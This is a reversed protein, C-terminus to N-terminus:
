MEGMIWPTVATKFAKYKNLNGGFKYLHPVAQTPDTVILIQSTAPNGPTIRARVQSCADDPPMAMIASLDMQQQAMINGGGHCMPACPNMTTLQPVVMAQFDAIDKCTNQTMPMMKTATIEQFAIGLRAGPQWQSLILTGTGLPGSTAFTEDFGSFTDAPDPVESGTPGYVTFLPHVIHLTVGEIPYVTLNSLVLLTPDQSNAPLEDATFTISSGQFDTGLPDLDVENMAGMVRPKFPMITPKMGADVVPLNKAECTLWPIVKSKLTPSMNPAQGGGHQPSAPHVIIISTTPDSVIVGPWTTISVYPDPAALFPDDAIGGLDHCGGCENQMGQLVTTEFLNRCPSGGDSAGTGTTTSTGGGM